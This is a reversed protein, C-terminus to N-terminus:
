FQYKFKRLTLTITNQKTTSASRLTCQVYIKCLIMLAITWLSFLAKEKIYRNFLETYVRKNNFTKDNIETFKDKIPFM